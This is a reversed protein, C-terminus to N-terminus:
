SQVWASTPDAHWEERMARAAGHSRAAVRMQVHQARADRMSACVGDVSSDQPGTQLKVGPLRLRMDCEPTLSAAVACAPACILLAM